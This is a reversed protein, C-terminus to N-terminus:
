LRNCNGSHSEGLSKQAAFNRIIGCDAVNKM